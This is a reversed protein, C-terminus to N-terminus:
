LRVLLDDGDHLIEAGDVHVDERQALVEAGRVTVDWEIAVDRRLLEAAEVLDAHLEAESVDLASREHPGAVVCPLLNLRRAYSPDTNPPSHETAHPRRGM